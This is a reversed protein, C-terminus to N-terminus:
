HGANPSCRPLHGCSTVYQSWEARASSGMASSTGSVGGYETNSTSTTAPQANQQGSTSQANVGGAFSIAGLFAASLLFTTKM